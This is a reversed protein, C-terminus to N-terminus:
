AKLLELNTPIVIMARSKPNALQQANLWAFLDTNWLENM